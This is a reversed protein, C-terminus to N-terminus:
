HLRSFFQPNKYFTAETFYQDNEFVAYHEGVRRLEFPSEDGYGTFSFPGTIDEALWTLAIPYYGEDAIQQKLAPTIRIGHGQIKIKKDVISLESM